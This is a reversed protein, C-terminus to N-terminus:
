LYTGWGRSDVATTRQTRSIGQLACMSGTDTSEQCSQLAEPGSARVASQVQLCGLGQKRLRNRRAESSVTLVTIQAFM